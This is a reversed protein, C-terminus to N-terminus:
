VCYYIVDAHAHGLATRAAVVRVGGVKPRCGAGVGTCSCAPRPVLPGACVCLASPTRRAAPPQSRAPRGPAPASDVGSISPVHSRTSVDHSTRVTKRHTDKSYQSSYAYLPLAERAHVTGGHTAHHRTVECLHFELPTQATMRARAPVVSRYIRLFSSSFHLRLM